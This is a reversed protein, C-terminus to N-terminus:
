CELIKLRKLTARESKETALAEVAAVLAENRDVAMVDLPLFQSPSMRIDHANLDVTYSGLQGDILFKTGECRVNTLKKATVIKKIKSIAKDTDDRTGGASSASAATYVDRMCESFEILPIAKYDVKITSSRDVKTFDVSSVQSGAFWRSVLPAEVTIGSTPLFRYASSVNTTEWGSSKLVAYFQFEDCLFGFLGHEAAADKASSFYEPLFLGREVQPISQTLQRERLWDRWRIWGGHAVLDVPHILRLQTSSKISYSQEDISLLKKGGPQELLGINTGDTFLLSELQRALVPHALMQDIEAKDFLRQQSVARQLVHRSHTAFKQLSKLLQQQEAVKKNSKLTTPVTKVVKGANTIHSAPKGTADVVLQIRVDGSKFERFKEFQDAAAAQIIWELGEENEVGARFVLLRIAYDANEEAMDGDMFRRCQKRYDKIAKYREMVDLGLGSGTALPLLALPRADVLKNSHVEALLAKRAAKGRLAQVLTKLETAYKPTMLVESADFLRSWQADNADNVIEYFWSIFVEQNTDEEEAVDARKQNTKKNWNEITSDTYGIADQKLREQSNSSSLWSALSIDPHLHASRLHNLLWQLLGPLKPWALAAAIPESWQPAVFAARLLHDASVKKKKLLGKLSEAVAQMDCSPEPYIATTLKTWVSGQNTLSQTPRTFSSKATALLMREFRAYGEIYGVGAALTTWESLQKAPRNLESDLIKDAFFDFFRNWEETRKPCRRINAVQWYEIVSYVHDESLKKLLSEAVDGLQAEGNGYAELADKKRLAQPYVREPFEPSRVEDSLCEPQQMWQRIQIRDFEAKYKEFLVKPIAALISEAMDMMFDVDSWTAQTDLLFSFVQNIVLPNHLGRWLKVDVTEPIRKVPNGEALQPFVDLFPYTQLAKLQSLDVGAPLKVDDFNATPKWYSALRALDGPKALSVAEEKWWNTWIQKYADSWFYVRWQDLTVVEDLEPAKPKLQLLQAKHKEIFKDLLQLIKRGSATLRELPRYVPPRQPTLSLGPYFAEVRASPRCEAPVEKAPLVTPNSDPVDAQAKATSKPKSSSKKAKSDTPEVAGVDPVSFQKQFRLRLKAEAETITKSPPIALYKRIAREVAENGNPYMAEFSINLGLARLNSKKQSLLLDLVAEFLQPDHAALARAYTIGVYDSPSSKKLLLELWQEPRLPCKFLIKGMSDVRWEVQAMIAEISFEDPPVYGEQIFTSLTLTPDKAAPGLISLSENTWLKRLLSRLEDFFKSGGAKFLKPYKHKQDYARRCAEVAKTLLTKREAVSLIEVLSSCAEMAAVVKNLDESELARMFLSAMAPHSTSKVLTLILPQQNAPANDLREQLIPVADEVERTMMAWAQVLWEDQSAGLGLGQSQRELAELSLEIFQQLLKSSFDLDPFGFWSFLQDGVRENRLQKSENVMRLLREFQSMDAEVLGRVISLQKDPQSERGLWDFLLDLLEEQQSNALAYVLHLGLTSAPHRDELTLRLTDTVNQSSKNKSDIVSALLRGIHASAENGEFCLGLFRMTGYPQNDFYPAWVALSEATFLDEPYYVLLKTMQKIWEGQRPRALEPRAPSRYPMPRTFAHYPGAGLRRWTALAAPALNGFTVEFLKLLQKDTLEFLEAPVAADKIACTTLERAVQQHAKPLRELAAQFRELQPASFKRKELQQRGLQFDLPRSADPM